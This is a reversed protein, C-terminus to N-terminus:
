AESLTISSTGSIFSGKGIPISLGRPDDIYSRMDASITWLELLDRRVSEPVLDNKVVASLEPRVNSELSGGVTNAKARCDELVVRLGDDATGGSQIAKSMSSTCTDLETRFMVGAVLLRLFVVRARHAMEVKGLERLGMSNVVQLAKIVDEVPICFGLAEANAAKATVVGIVSGDRSLVPGGSNGANVSAGLQYFRRGDLTTETSMVGRAIANQLTVQGDVSPSGIVTVDDGRRFVYSQGLILPPLAVDVGLIALDRDADEYYVRARHPGRADGKASPFHIQLDGSFELKIVHANTALLNAGVIFGTGSGTRGKIECGGVGRDARCNGDDWSAIAGVLDGVWFCCGAGFSGGLDLGPAFQASRSQRIVVSTRCSRCNPRRSVAPGTSISADLRLDGFDFAVEIAPSPPPAPVAAKNAGEAGPDSCKSSEDM